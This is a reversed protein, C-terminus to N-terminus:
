KLKAADELVYYKVSDSANSGTTNMYASPSDKVPDQAGTANKLLMGNDGNILGLSKYDQSQGYVVRNMSNRGTGDVHPEMLLTRHTSKSTQPSFQLKRSSVSHNYYTRQM